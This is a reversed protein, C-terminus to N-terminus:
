APKLSSWPPLNLIAPDGDAARAVASATLAASASVLAKRLFGRRGEQVAQVDTENLFNEPAPRLRGRQIPQEAM